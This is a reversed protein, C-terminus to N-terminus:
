GGAYHQAERGPTYPHIKCYRAIIRGDPNAVIAENRGRGDPGVTAVGGILFIGFQHATECLFRESAATENDAIRDLNMSFGSAFMEPLAVLAGRAPPSQELLARVKRHNAERDEWAIDLQVAAVQM